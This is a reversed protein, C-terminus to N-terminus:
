NAGRELTDKMATHASASSKNASVGWFTITPSGFVHSNFFKMALHIEHISGFASWTAMEIKFNGKRIGKAWVRVVAAEV